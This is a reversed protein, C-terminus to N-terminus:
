TSRRAGSNYTEKGSVPQGAGSADNRWEPRHSYTGITSHQDLQSILLRWIVDPFMKALKEIAAIRQDVSAATQPMWSRFIAGLSSEPKNTWNDHDSLLLTQM